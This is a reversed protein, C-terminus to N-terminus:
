SGTNFKMMIAELVGRGIARMKYNIAYCIAADNVPDIEILKSGKSVSVGSRLLGRLMGSMPAELPQAGISGIIQHIDVSDGIERDTTFVGSHPAWIVREKTLGNIAVPTGTDKEAAGAVIVMGLNNSHNTEVVIHVDRGAYFGPGVGIVLPADTIMTGKNQKAMTADILVDPQMKEKISAEPDIVIPINGQQWVRHIEEPVLPVFEATVGEITKTRDFVAESFTTGRSVSLPNAIETLCVKFYSLHLRHAIGSAVEGSGRILVILESLKRMLNRREIVQQEENYERERALNGNLREKEKECNM